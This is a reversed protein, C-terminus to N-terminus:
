AIFFLRRNAELTQLILDSIVIQLSYYILPSQLLSMLHNVFASKKKKVCVKEGTGNALILQTM